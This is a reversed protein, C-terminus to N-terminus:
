KLTDWKVAIHVILQKEKKEEPIFLVGSKMPM